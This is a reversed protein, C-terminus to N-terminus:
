RAGAGAAVRYRGEEEEMRKRVEEFPETRIQWDGDFPNDLDWILYLIFSISGAMAGTMAAHAWFTQMGFLYMSVVTVVGGAVILLWLTVPLRMRCHVLRESRADSLTNFCSLAQEYLAEERPGRPEFRVLDRWIEALLDRAEECLGGRAMAKWEKAIVAEAYERTNRVADECGLGMAIRFLDWLEHAELEVTRHTENFQTWVVFVVFALLVAYVTGITQLYNGAVDNNGKLVDAAVLERVVFLGAVSLLISGAVWLFLKWM